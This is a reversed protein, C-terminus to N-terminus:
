RIPPAYQLGGKTWLSNLGRTIKLPSGQGVNRDFVEGYNGVNKVIRRVWDKTLGLQEGYNGETGLLRKIEPNDSKVQEDVNAKTVNLEEANVMAFHVWKVVDFWQDDGHRVFPALPEKSIIEPLVVHDDPKALKLRVSYLQSADTTFANCRGSEYASTAEELQLFTVTKLRMKNARFYDALNLETTTGQQVCITADNLELASNVKLDKRVMFGQGDYYNVATANLGLQSDRSSTWTTNRALVDVDGSQLTTFRDKATLAVFKVKTPDNFVAAAVARCLDVDLGTWNGQSDPLGFGPLQGNAGCNLMGRKKVDDLTSASAVTALTMALSACALITVLRKMPLSRPSNSIARWGYPPNGKAPM